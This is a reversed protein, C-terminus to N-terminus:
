AAVELSASIGTKEAVTHKTGYREDQLVVQKAHLNDSNIVIPGLLNTTVRGQKKDVTVTTILAARAADRLGISEADEEALDIDYDPFFDLPNIVIFALVPDDVAQLWKYPTEPEDQLLVYRKCSGFGLVGEPMHLISDESIEVEGFRTTNILM